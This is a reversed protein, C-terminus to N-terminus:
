LTKDLANFLCCGVTMPRHHCCCRTIITSTVWHQWCNILSWRSSWVWNGAKHVAYHPGNANEHHINCAQRCSLGCHHCYNLSCEHCCCHWSAVLRDSFRSIRGTSMKLKGDFLHRGYEYLRAKVPQLMCWLIHFFWFQGTVNHLWWYSFNDDYRGCFVVRCNGLWNHFLM